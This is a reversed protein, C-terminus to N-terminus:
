KNNMLPTIMVGRVHQYRIEGGHKTKLLPVEKKIFNYTLNNIEQFSLGEKTKSMESAIYRIISSTSKRDETMKRAVDAVSLESSSSIINTTM